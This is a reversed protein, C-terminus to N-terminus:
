EILENYIDFYREFCKNKDFFRIARERCKDRKIPKEKLNLIAHKMMMIDGQEVVIGTNADIAEPSGGTKYTIIPTGCALAEINTTPFNDSYTPNLFVDAESYLKALEEVNQTREIGKIGLPLAKIQKKNLGVLIISYEEEPLMSRLRIFDNLGKRADWVAAVGIICFKKDELNSKDIPRFVNIDIGNHIITIPYHSLASERLSNGLWDSVPVFVIKDIRSISSIKKRLNISARNILTRRDHCKICKKKWKDCNLMDYYMCGGTFSWCDHQTWVVPIRKQAIYEFLLEYNLWHDHINHLHIITPKIADIKEILYKTEKRSVLGEKDFLRFKAYHIIANLPSGVKIINSKSPIAKELGSYAIWSEWGKGIALEGIQQAIKGTSYNLCENIQLLVPM